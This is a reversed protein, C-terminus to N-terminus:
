EPPAEVLRAIRQRPKRDAAVSEKEMGGFQPERQDSVVDAAYEEM